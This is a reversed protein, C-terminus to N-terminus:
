KNLLLNFVVQTGIAKNNKDYLDEFSFSYQCKFKINFLNFRDQTIKLGFSEKKFSKELKAKEAFLRGVGNDKLLLKVEKQNNIIRLQIKKSHKVRTLGHWIANEIFPQLFLPPVKVSSLDQDGERLIEFDIPEEFRLNEISLYLKIIELEEELNHSETKSSELINRILRSFKNLYIIANEKDNQILYVKISNLANFLFHPNMQSRLTNLRSNKLQLDYNSKMEKIRNQEKIILETARIKEKYLHKIKYGLGSMFVISEIYIGYFFYKIPYDEASYLTKYLALYAFFNYVIIGVVSFYGLYKSTSNSFFLALTYISLVIVIPLFIYFFYANVLDLIDIFNGFIYLVFGFSFCVLVLYKIRNYVVPFKEEFDMFRIYFMVLFSIYLEQSFSNFVALKPEQYYNPFFEGFFPSKTFIYSAVSISYLGYYLFDKKKYHYYIILCIVGLIVSLCFVFSWLFVETTNYAM